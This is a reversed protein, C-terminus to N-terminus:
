VNNIGNEFFLHFKLENVVTRYLEVTFLIIPSVCHVMIMPLDLPHALHM